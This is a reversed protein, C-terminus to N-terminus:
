EQEESVPRAMYWSRELFLEHELSDISCNSEIRLKPVADEGVNFNDAEVEAAAFYANLNLDAVGHELVFQEIIKKGEDTLSYTYM